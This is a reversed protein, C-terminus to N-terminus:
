AVENPSFEMKGEVRQIMILQSGITGHILVSNDIDSNFLMRVEELTSGLAFWIWVFKPNPARSLIHLRSSILSLIRHSDLDLIPLQLWFTWKLPELIWALFFWQFWPLFTGRRHVMHALLSSMTNSPDFLSFCQKFNLCYDINNVYMVLDIIWKSNINIYIEKPISM